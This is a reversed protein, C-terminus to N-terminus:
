NEGDLFNAKDQTMTEFVAGDLGFHSINSQMAKMRSFKCTLLQDSILAPVSTNKPM